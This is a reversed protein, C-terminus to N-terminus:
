LTAMELFPRGPSYSRRGENLASATIVNERARFDSTSCNLDVSLQRLLKEYYDKFYANM